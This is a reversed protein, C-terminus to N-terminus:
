AALPADPIARLIAAAVQGYLEFFADDNFGSGSHFLGADIPQDELLGPKRDYHGLVDGHDGVVVGGLEDPDAPDLLQLGSSALGDNTEPGLM